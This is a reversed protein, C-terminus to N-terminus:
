AEKEKKLLTITVTMGKGEDSDLRITGQNQEVIRKAIALGLGSGGTGRGRAKDVRYFREFLQGLERRPVGIGEDKVQLIVTNAEEKCVITVPKKSYKIANDLLIILLQKIKKGRRGYM